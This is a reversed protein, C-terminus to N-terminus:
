SAAPLITISRLLREMYRSYTNPFHNVIEIFRTKTSNTMYYYDVPGPYGEVNKKPYYSTGKEDIVNPLVRGLSAVKGDFEEKTISRIKISGGFEGFAIGPNFIHVASGRQATQPPVDSPSGNPDPRLEVSWEGQCYDQDNKKGEKDEDSAWSTGCLTVPYDFSLFSDEYTKWEPDQPIKALAARLERNEKQLEVGRTQYYGATGGGAAVLILLIFIWLKM